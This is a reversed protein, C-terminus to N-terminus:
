SPTGNVESSNPGSGQNNAASIVYFYEVGTTLGLDTYTLLSVQAIVTYPGGTVLARKVDYKTAGAVASWALVNQNAGPTCMPSGPAGSPPPGGGVQQVKGYNFKAFIPNLTEHPNLGKIAKM